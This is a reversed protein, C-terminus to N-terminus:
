LCKTSIFTRSNRLLDCSRPVDSHPRGQPEQCVSVGHSGMVSTLLYSNDLVGPGAGPPLLIQRHVLCTIVVHFSLSLVTALIVVMFFQYCLFLFVCIGSISKVMLIGM